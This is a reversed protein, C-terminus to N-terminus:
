MPKRRGRHFACRRVNASESHLVTTSRRTRGGTGNRPGPVPRPPGVGDRTTVPAAVTRAAPLARKMSPGAVDVLPSTHVDDHVGGVVAGAGRSTSSTWTDLQDVAPVVVRHPTVRVVGRGGAVPVSAPNSALNPRSRGPGM